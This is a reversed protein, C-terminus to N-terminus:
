RGVPLRVRTRARKADHIMRKFVVDSLRRKLALPKEM